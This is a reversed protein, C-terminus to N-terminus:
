APKRGCSSAAAAERSFASFESYNGEILLHGADHSVGYKTVSM